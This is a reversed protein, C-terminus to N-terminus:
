DSCCSRFRGGDRAPLLHHVFRWFTRPDPQLDPHASFLLGFGDSDFPGGLPSRPGACVALSVVRLSLGAQAQHVAPQDRGLSHPGGSRLDSFLLCVRWRATMPVIRALDGAPAPKESVYSFRPRWAFGGAWSGTCIIASCATPRHRSRSELNGQVGPRRLM